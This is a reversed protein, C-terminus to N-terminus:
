GDSHLFVPVGLKKIQYVEEELYPFILERLLEPTIFLGSNFAMDDPIIIRHVGAEVLKGQKLLEM